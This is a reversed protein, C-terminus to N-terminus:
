AVRGVWMNHRYVSGLNMTSNSVVSDDYNTIILESGVRRQTTGRYTWSTRVISCDRYLDWVLPHDDYSILIKHSCNSVEDALREHDEMTFTNPYLKDRTKRETDSVYPPDLYVFVDEGPEQLLPGYDGSTIRADHFWKAAAELKGNGVISWGDPNSFFVDQWRVRGNWTTRNVFFWRLALDISEDNRMQEFVERLRSKQQEKGTTPNKEEPSLCPIEKCKAIFATPREKLARYVSILGEDMDNIWRKKDQGIAFGIGLGGCFPERYEKFHRPARELIKERVSKSGKAGPYRIITSTMKNRRLDILKKTPIFGV